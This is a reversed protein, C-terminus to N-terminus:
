VLNLIGSFGTIDLVEKVAPRANAILLLQLGASIKSSVKV